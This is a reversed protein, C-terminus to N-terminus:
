RRLKSTNTVSGTQGALLVLGAGAALIMGLITFIGTGYGGASPLEVGDIPYNIVYGENHIENNTLDSVYGGATGSSRNMITIADKYGSPITDETVYYVWEKAGAGPKNELERIEFWYIRDSDKNVAVQYTRGMITVSGTDATLIQETKFATDEQGDTGARRHINVKLEMGAPWDEAAGAMGMWQKGFKFMKENLQNWGERIDRSITVKPLSQMKGHYLLFLVSVDKFDFLKLM